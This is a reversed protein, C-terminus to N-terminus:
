FAIQYDGLTTPIVLESVGDNVIENTKLGTVTRRNGSDTYVLYGSLLSGIRTSGHLTETAREIRNCEASDIFLGNAYFTKRAGFDLGYAEGLMEVWNEFTNFNDVDWIAAYSTMDPIPNSGIYTVYADNLLFSQLNNKIRNFDTINFRDTTQWNTKPTTYAM